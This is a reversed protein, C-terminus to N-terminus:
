VGVDDEGPEGGGVGGAVREGQGEGALGYGFEEDPREASPWGALECAGARVEVGPAPLDGCDCGRQAAGGVLCASLPLARCREPVLCPQQEGCRGRRFPLCCSRRCRRVRGSGLRAGRM